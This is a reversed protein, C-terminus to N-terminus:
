DSPGSIPFLTSNDIATGNHVLSIDDVGDLFGKHQRVVHFQGQRSEGPMLPHDFVFWHTNNPGQEGMLQGGAITVTVEESYQPLSLLFRDIAETSKNKLEFNATADIKLQDPYINADVNVSTMTPVPLEGYASFAKEYAIQEAIIDGPSVYDNIIRTKFFIAGGCIVFASLASPVLWKGLTGIQHSFHPLRSKIPQYLGRQWLGYCVVSLALGLAGWYLMFWAQSQLARGYGNMDSYILDPSQAFRYLNSTLGAADLAFDSLMFAVFLLMGVYKNPSIVQFTMALIILLFWPLLNFFTLRTVYQSLEVSQAGISNQYLLTVLTTILLISSVILLLAIVKSLWLTFNTVPQAGLLESFKDQQERWVVEACYYTIIIPILFSLTQELQDIMFQTLPWSPTILNNPPDALIGLTIFSFM